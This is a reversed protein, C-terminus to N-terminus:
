GWGEPRRLVYGDRKVVEGPLQSRRVLAESMPIFQGIRRKIEKSHRNPPFVAVVNRGYRDRAAEMPFVLDSDGSVVFYHDAAGAAADILLHSALNVDSEKEEYRPYQHGCNSCKVTRELYKGYIIEVGREALAELYITQRKRKDKDAGTIRATFYKVTGVEQDPRCLKRIAEMPDLWKYQGKLSRLGFYLNFGDIYANVRQM